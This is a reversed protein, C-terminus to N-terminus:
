IEIMLQAHMHMYNEEDQYSVSCTLLFTFLYTLVDM